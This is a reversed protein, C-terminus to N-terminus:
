RKPADRDVIRWILGFVGLTLLFHFWGPPELLWTGAAWGILLAIAGLTLLDTRM